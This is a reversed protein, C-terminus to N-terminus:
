EKLFINVKYGHKKVADTLNHYIELAISENHPYIMHDGLDYGENTIYDRVCMVNKAGEIEAHGHDATLIVNVVDELGSDHLKAVFYGFLQDLQRIKKRLEGNYFGNLHLTHDPEAVYWAVFNVPNEENTFLDIIADVDTMWETLNRFDKWQKENTLWVPEGLYWSSDLSENVVGQRKTSNFYDFFKGTDTDWFYNSVIGHDEEHL